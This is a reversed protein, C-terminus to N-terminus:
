KGVNLSLRDSGDEVTMFGLLILVVRQTVALFLATRM